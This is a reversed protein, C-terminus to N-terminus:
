SWAGGPTGTPEGAGLPWLAQWSPWGAAVAVRDGETPTALGGAAGWRLPDFYVLRTADGLYVTGYGSGGPPAVVTGWRTVNM